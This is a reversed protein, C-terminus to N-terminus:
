PKTSSPGDTPQGGRARRSADEIQRPPLKACIEPLCHEAIPEGNESALTFWRYAEIPDIPVGHGEQYMRGLNMQGRANGKEAAQRFCAVAQKADAHVGWGGQEYIVGLSNLADIRGHR